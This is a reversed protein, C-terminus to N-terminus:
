SDSNIFKFRCQIGLSSDVSFSCYAKLVASLKECTTPSTGKCKIAENVNGSYVLIRAIQKSSINKKGLIKL